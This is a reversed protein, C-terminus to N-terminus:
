NESIGLGPEHRSVASSVLLWPTSCGLPFLSDGSFKYLYLGQEGARAVGLQCFEAECLTLTWHALLAHNIWRYRPAAKPLPFFGDRSVLSAITQKRQHECLARRYGEHESISMNTIEFNPASSHKGMAAVLSKCSNSIQAESKRQNSHTNIGTTFLCRGPALM